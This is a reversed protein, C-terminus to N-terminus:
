GDLLWENFLDHRSLMTVYSFYTTMEFPLTYLKMARTIWPKAQVEKEELIQSPTIVGWGTGLNRRGQVCVTYM